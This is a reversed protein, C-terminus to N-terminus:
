TRSSGVKFNCRNTQHELWQGSIEPHPPCLKYTHPLKVPAPRELATLSSKSPVSPSPRFNTSVLRSINSLLRHKVKSVSMTSCPAFAASWLSGTTGSVPFHWRREVIFPVRTTDLNVPQYRAWTTWIRRHTASEIIPEMEDQATLRVGLHQHTHPREIARENM